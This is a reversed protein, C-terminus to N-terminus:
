VLQCNLESRSSPPYLSVPIISGYDQIPLGTDSYGIRRCSMVGRAEGSGFGRAAASRTFVGPGLKHFTHGLQHPLLPPLCFHFTSDRDGYKCLGTVASHCATFFGAFPCKRNLNLPRGTCTKTVSSPPRSPPAAPGESPTGRVCRRVQDLVEPPLRRCVM